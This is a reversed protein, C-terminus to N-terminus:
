GLVDKVMKLVLEGIAPSATLGPSEIGVLNLANKYEPSYDIFFDAAPQGEPIRKPRIGSIGLRLDSLKLGPLLRKGSEFFINEPLRSNEYDDKKDIYMASPGVLLEGAITPTFHVGLSKANSPVPYVLGSVLGKARSPVVTCYEGRCPHIRHSDDGTMAAVKDSHLGAANIVFRAAISGRAVTSIKLLEGEPEIACVEAGVLTLLGQSEAYGAVRQILESQDVIGSRPSLLAAAVKINPEMRSAESADLMRLDQAGNESGCKYIDELKGVECPEVAVLLKGCIDHSINLRRAWEEILIKGRVCLRAKLSGPPYYLGAHFVGSNRTSTEEGLRSNKELLVCEYGAQALYLGCFLGVIGGGVIAVDVADKHEHRTDPTSSSKNPPM